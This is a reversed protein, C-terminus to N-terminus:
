RQPSRLRDVVFLSCLGFGAGAVLLRQQYEFAQGRKSKQVTLLRKRMRPSRYLPMPLWSNSLEPKVVVPKRSVIACLLFM